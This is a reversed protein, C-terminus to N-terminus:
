LEFVLPETEAHLIGRPNGVAGLQGRHWFFFSFFFFSDSREFVGGFLHPGRLAEANVVAM